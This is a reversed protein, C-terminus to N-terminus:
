GRDFERFIRLLRWVGVRPGFEFVSEVMPSRVGHYAPFGIDTLVDESQTDGELLSREGGAEFNLNFNIAIRAGGPWDAQPPNPGYGYFDRVADTRNTEDSM